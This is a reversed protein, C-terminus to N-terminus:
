AMLKKRNPNLIDQAKYFTIEDIIPEHLGTIIEDVCKTKLKGIYLYNRLINNIHQKTIKIGSKALENM